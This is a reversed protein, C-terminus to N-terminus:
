TTMFTQMTNNNQITVKTYVKIGPTVPLPDPCVIPTSVPCVLTVPYPFRAYM